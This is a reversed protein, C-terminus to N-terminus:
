TRVPARRLLLFNLGLIIITALTMGASNIWPTGSGPGILYQFMSGLRIVVSTPIFNSLLSLYVPSLAIAIKLPKSSRYFLMTIFWGLSAFMLLMAFEWVLSPVLRDQGFAISYLSQYRYPIFVLYINKLFADIITMVAAITALSSLTAVYFSRRTVNFLQMFLFNAKFCNLGSIFIFIASAFELGTASGNGNTYKLSFALLGVVFLLAAYFITIPLWSDQLQYQYSKLTKM